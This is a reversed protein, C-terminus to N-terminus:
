PLFGRVKEPLCVGLSCLVLDFDPASCSVQAACFDDYACLRYCSQGEGVTGTFAMCSWASTLWTAWDISTDFLCVDQKLKPDFAFAPCVEGNELVKYEKDTIGLLYTYDCAYTRGSAREVRPALKPDKLAERRATRLMGLMRVNGDAITGAKEVVPLVNNVRATELEDLPGNGFRAGYGLRLYRRPTKSSCKKLNKWLAENVLVPRRSDRIRCAGLAGPPAIGSSKDSPQGPGEDFFITSPCGVLLVAIGGMVAAAAGRRLITLAKVAVNDRADVGDALHISYLAGM